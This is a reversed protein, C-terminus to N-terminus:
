RNWKDLVSPLAALTAIEADPIITNRALANRPNESRRTIWVGRMGARHAGLIDAGLIDGVQISEAASVGMKQLAAEFIQPNPKRIGIDSSTMIVKFYKRIDEKDILTNVDQSDAANSIIGLRIGRTRLTELTSVADDELRWFKETVAYMEDLAQRYVKKTLHDQGFELLVQHLFGDVPKEVLDKERDHYYQTIVTEFREAFRTLPLDCGFRNLANALVLYSEATKRGFDADFYMLTYGLDFFVAAVPLYNDM